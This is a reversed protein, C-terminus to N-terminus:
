ASICLEIHHMSLRAVNKQTVISHLCYLVICYLVIIQLACLTSYLVDFRLRPRHTARRSFYERPEHPALVRRFEVTHQMHRCHIWIASINLPVHVSNVYYQVRRCTTPYLQTFIVATMCNRVFPCFSTIAYIAYQRAIAYICSVKLLRARNM